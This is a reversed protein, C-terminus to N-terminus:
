GIRKQEEREALLMNVTAQVQILAETNAELTKKMSVMFYVATFIPFGVQSLFNIWLEEMM